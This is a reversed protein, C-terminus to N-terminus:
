SAFSVRVPLASCAWGFGLAMSGGCIELNQGTRLQGERNGGWSYVEGDVTVGCGGVRTSPRAPV